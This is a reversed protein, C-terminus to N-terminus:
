ILRLSDLPPPCSTQWTKGQMSPHVHFLSFGIELFPVREYIPITKQREPCTQGFYLLDLIQSVWTTGAKPYTAILIDDPRAQFNQVNEWNDTFYHTM